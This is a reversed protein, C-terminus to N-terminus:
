KSSSALEDLTQIILAPPVPKVLHRDFGALRTMSQDEEGGWGTVAVLRVNAGWPQARIRRCTEYGDMRPMGLDLLVVDPVFAAALDLAEMGDHATRVDHGLLEVLMSLTTAADQNDDVVLVKMTQGSGPVRGGPSSHHAANNLNSV